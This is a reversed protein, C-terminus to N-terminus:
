RAISLDGANNLRARYREASATDGLREYLIVVRQLARQTYAHGAGSARVLGEYGQVLWPEAERARGEALLSEGVLSRANATWAHDPGLAREYIAEGARRYREAGVPDGRSLLFDGVSINANGIRWHGAPMHEEVLGLRERLLAEQEDYRELRGLAAALNGMLMLTTPHWEALEKRVEEWAERYMAESEEYAGRKALVFGLNNLVASMDSSSAGARRYTELVERYIVEASDLDGLARLVFGLNRLARIVDPHDRGQLARRTPLVDEMIARASDAQGEQRLALALGEKTDAMELPDAGLEAKLVLAERFLPVAFEFGRSESWLSGLRELSHALDARSTPGLSRQTAIAEEYLSRARELLGLRENVDAVVGMLRTRVQPEAELSTRLQNAGRDLLTRATITDGVGSGPNSVEFLDVLFTSVEEATRAEREIARAQARTTLASWSALGTLAVLLTAVLAGGAVALRHRRVFRSARYAFTDKHAMVPRGACYSRIDDALEAASRYRRTPEKRLAMLVITDLDGALQRRLRGLVPGDTAEDAAVAASPAVPHTECVIREVDSTTRGSLDYPHRGTLLAYLLVGLAYVDSATTITEGRLQEPSAYAPTMPRAAATLTSPDNTEGPDLVRAIGFDLLKVAGDDTVLINGPKLDRHVILNQHAHQVADCVELFLALRNDVDPVHSSVYADITTGEVHEMVFYPTGDDTIGGDLLRAINPHELRALIQREARFRQEASSSAFAMPLLKLAVQMEFAEDAREALYVAGMGGRGLLRVLRYRGIIKGELRDTEGSIRPVGARDALSDFYEVAEDASALLSAVETRLDEDDGCLEDLVRDREEAPRDVVAAFLREVEQWRDPNM